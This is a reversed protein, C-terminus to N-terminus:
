NSASSNLIKRLDERKNYKRETKSEHINLDLHEELDSMELNLMEEFFDTRDQGPESEM